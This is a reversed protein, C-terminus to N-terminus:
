VAVAPQKMFDQTVSRHKTEVALIIISTTKRHITIEKLM